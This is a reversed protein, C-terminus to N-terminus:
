ANNTQKILHNAIRRHGEADFHQSVLRNSRDETNNELEDGWTFSDGSFLIRM